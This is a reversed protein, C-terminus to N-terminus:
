FRRRRPAGYGGPPNRPFGARAASRSLHLFNNAIVHDKQLVEILDSNTTAEEVMSERSMAVVVAFGETRGPLLCWLLESGPRTETELPDISKFDFFVPKASQLWTAPFCEDPFSVLFAGDQAKRFQAFCKAFRKYNNKRHGVDVVWVMNKYFAERTAREQPGLPSHQFEIVLGHGTRVDAIHKEGTRSDFLVIEQWEVPFKAKWVRHWETEEWWSDCEKKSVHAWHWARHDGCRATVPQKCGPCLGKLKPAALTRQNNVLAILM